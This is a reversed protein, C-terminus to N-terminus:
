FNNQKKCVYYIRQTKEKPPTFKLEDFIGLIELNAKSLMKELEGQTYAREFFEEHSKKYCQEEKVFFDLSIAVENTKKIFKNQWVCYIDEDNIIFTNDGLIERHKYPTNVDFIFLKEPELFLSIKEFARQLIRKDTIHNISDTLCVAGDVTGYLDLEETGQCLYLIDLDTKATKERALSLMDESIDTGIVEIGRSALEISFNGTGCAADLLLTPAAGFKKFLKLIYDTRKKYDADTMLLDYCPAFSKYTSM